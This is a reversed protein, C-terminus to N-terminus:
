SATQKVDSTRNLKTAVEKLKASLAFASFEAARALEASASTSPSGLEAHSTYDGAMQM